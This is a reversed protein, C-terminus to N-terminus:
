AVWSCFGFVDKIRLNQKKLTATKLEYFINGAKAIASKL